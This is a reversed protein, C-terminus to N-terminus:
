KASRHRFDISRKGIAISILLHVRFQNLSAEVLAMSFVRRGGCLDGIAPNSSHQSPLSCGTVWGQSIFNSWPRAEREAGAALIEGVCAMKNKQPPSLFDLTWSQLAVM